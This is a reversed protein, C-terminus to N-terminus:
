NSFILVRTEYPALDFACAGGELPLQVGEDSRLNRGDLSTSEAAFGLAETLPTRDRGSPSVVPTSRDIVGFQHANSNNVLVLVHEAPGPGSGNNASSELGDDGSTSNTFAFVADVPEESGPGSHVEFLRLNETGAFLERKGLLRTIQQRHRELFLTDPSEAFQGRGYDMGYKELLGEAQGHGFLPTGPLTVLLTAAAFYKDGKGFAEAASREDPTTLFNVYRRLESPETALAERLWRQLEDNREDRVSHLFVSHYVRHFGLQRVFYPEMLWFAEAVLMSDPAEEALREVVDLWLERPMLEDFESSSLGHEARSPIAGGSAPTPFWLRQFHQRTLTMAADFRVIPFRKALAVIEDIIAERVDARTYDLQATDNWPLGTGDNGHYLYRTEDTRRDVRKFVVAADTRDRYGDELFLGIDPDTSLDEDVTFSYDPFPPEDVSIFREPHEIVWRADLGTHNPVMDCALALGAEACRSELVELAAEGGLADAIVYDAVAYASSVADARGFRRKFDGSARSRQWIGILWLATYGRQSLDRLAELPIQDLRSIDGGHRHSLQDLWVNVNKAVIVAYQMWPMENVARWDQPPVDPPPPQPPPSPEASPVFPLRSEERLVDLGRRLRDVLHPPPSATDILQQLQVEARSGRDFPRRLTSLLRFDPGLDEAFFDDLSAILSRYGTTEEFRRDDFLDRLKGFAPNRNALWLFLVMVLQRSPASREGGTARTSYRGEFEAFTRDLRERGFRGALWIPADALVEPGRDQRESILHAVLEQILLLAHLEGSSFRREPPRHDNLRFTIRRVSELDPLLLGGEPGRPMDQLATSDLAESRLIWQRAVLPEDVERAQPRIGAADFVPKLIDSRFRRAGLRPALRGLVAAMDDQGLEALMDVYGALREGDDRPEPPKSTDDETVIRALAVDPLGAVHSIRRGAETAKRLLILRAIDDDSYLRHRGDGRKPEIARYRSEWARILAPTLGTRRAVVRIPHRPQSREASSLM